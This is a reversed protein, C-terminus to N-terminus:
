RVGYMRISLTENGSTCWTCGTIALACASTGIDNPTPCQVAVSLTAGNLRATGELRFPNSVVLDGDRRAPLNAAGYHDTTVSNATVSHALEVAVGEWPASGTLGTLLKASVGSDFDGGSAWVTATHSKEWIKLDGLAAIANRNATIGAKNTNISNNLAGISGLNANIRSANTEIKTGQAAVQADTTALDAKNKAAAAKNAAIGDAMGATALKAAYGGWSADPVATVHLTGGAENTAPASVWLHNTTQVKGAFYGRAQGDANRLIVHNALVQSNASGTPIGPLALMAAKTTRIAYVGNNHDPDLVRLYLPGDAIEDLDLGTGLSHGVAGLNYPVQGEAIVPGDAPAPLTLGADIANKNATIGAANTEIKVGQAAVVGDTTALDAKTKAIDAPLQHVHDSRSAATGSGASATGLPEPTGDSLPTAGGGGGGGGGPARQYLRFDAQIRNVQNPLIIRFQIDNTGSKNCTLILLADDQYSGDLIDATGNWRWQMNSSGRDDDSAAFLPWAQSFHSVVMLFDHTSANTFCDGASVGEELALNATYDTSVNREVFTNLLAAMLTWGGGGGGGGGGSPAAWDFAGSDGLTLVDGKAHHAPDPVQRVNGIATTNTAINTKNAAAADANAKIKTDQAGNTVQAANAKTLAADADLKVPNLAATTALGTQPHVHDQRSAETAKGAGATAGTAVAPTDSLGAGGGGGASFHVHDARSADTSTGPDATGTPKPTADSLTRPGAPKAVWEVAAADSTVALLDGGKGSRAPLGALTLTSPSVAEIAIRRPPGDDVTSVRLADNAEVNQLEAGLEEEFIADLALWVLDTNSSELLFRGTRPPEPLGGAAGGAAVVEAPTCLEYEGGETCVVGDPTAALLATGAACIAFTGVAAYPLKGM